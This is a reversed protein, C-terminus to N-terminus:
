KLQYSFEVFFWFMTQMNTIFNFACLYQLKSYSTVQFGVLAKEADARETANTSEYLNKCLVELQHVEQMYYFPIFNCFKLILSIQQSQM